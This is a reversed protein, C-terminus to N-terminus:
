TGWLYGLMGLLVGLTGLCRGLVGLYGGLVWADGCTGRFYGIMGLLVGLTSLCGGLVGM